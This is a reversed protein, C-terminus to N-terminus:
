RKRPFVALVHTMWAGEGEPVKLEFRAEKGFSEEPVAWRITSGSLRMGAPGSVLEIAPPVSGANSVSVKWVFVGEPTVAPEGEVRVVPVPGYVRYKPSFKWGGDSVGDNSQVLVHVWAGKGVDALAREAADGEVQVDDVFWKYRFTLPGGDPSEGRVVARVTGGTRVLAPELRVDTVSPLSKVANVTPTEVSVPGEATEATVLASITDGKRFLAPSLQEGEAVIGGEVKWRVQVSKVPQGGPMEVSVRPPLLKSPSPPVIVAKVRSGAATGPDSPAVAAPSRNADEATGGSSAGTGAPASEKRGCATGSALVVFALMAAVRAM